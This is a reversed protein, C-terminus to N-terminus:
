LPPAFNRATFCFILTRHFITSLRHFAKHCYSEPLMSHSNDNKSSSFWRIVLRGKKESYCCFLVNAKGQTVQLM